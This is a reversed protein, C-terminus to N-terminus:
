RPSRRSAPAARSRGSSITRSRRSDGAGVITALAISSAAPDSADAQILLQPTQGRVLDRAFNVPVTIAFAVEGEDLM